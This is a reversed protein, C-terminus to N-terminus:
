RIPPSPIFHIGNIALLFLLWLISLFLIIKPIYRPSFLSHKLAASTIVITCIAYFIYFFYFERGMMRAERFKLKEELDMPTNQSERNFGVIQFAIDEIFLQSIFVMVFVLIFIIYIRKFYTNKLDNFFIEISMIKNKYIISPSCFFQGRPNDIHQHLRILAFSTNIQM